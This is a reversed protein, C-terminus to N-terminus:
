DLSDKEIAMMYSTLFLWFYFYVWLFFNIFEAPKEISYVFLYFKYNFASFCFNLLYFRFYRQYFQACLYLLKFLHNWTMCAWLFKWITKTTWTSTHAGVLTLLVSCSSSCRFKFCVNAWLITFQATRPWLTDHLTMNIINSLIYNKIFAMHWRLGLHWWQAFPIIFHLLGLNGALMLMCGFFFSWM